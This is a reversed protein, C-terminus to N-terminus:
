LSMFCGPQRFSYLTNLSFPVDMRTQSPREEETPELFRVTFRHKGGSIEAFLQTEQVPKCAGTTCTGASRYQEPFIGM